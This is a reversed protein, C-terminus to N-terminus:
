EIIVIKQQELEGAVCARLKGLMQELDDQSCIRASGLVEQWRLRVEQSPQPIEPQYRLRMEQVKRQVNMKATGVVISLNRAESFDPNPQEIHEQIGRLEAEIAAVEVDVQDDPM